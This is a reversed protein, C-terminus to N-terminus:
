SWRRRPQKSLRQRRPQKNLHQDFFADCSQTVPRQSPFEDIVTSNGECLALLVSINGNSSPIMSNQWDIVTVHYHARHRRLDGAECNNAWGNIWVCILPFMLAWILWHCPLKWQFAASGNTLPSAVADSRENDPHMCLIVRFKYGNWKLALLVGKM